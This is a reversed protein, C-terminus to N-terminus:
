NKYDKGDYSDRVSRQWEELTRRMRAVVEPLKEALDTKEAPDAYIDHLRVPAEVGAKKNQGGAPTVILKHEGDILVGQTDKVFDIKSFEGSGNWLMFGVPKPRALMKGDFLPVLSVGDVVPQNPMRVGVVDLVTPYIDMHACVVKTQIPQKIRGPWELCGVTRVGVKGKGKGSPDQSLPTIGGNDSTFWVITNDAINLRRLEARLKGVAADIGALEAWFDVKGPQDKYLAKFEEAGVHPSHPSGFCVYAFFPRKEQAQKRIYELALDMTAVSSDGQLQVYDNTDNVHLKAGIDYFNPSWTSQDFGMKVPHTSGTGLHWKGFHATGYGITKLAKALTIEQPRMAGLHHLGTRFPARGTLIGFRGPSCMQQAPYFYDFRVGGAAIQDLHPTKIVPSGAYSADRWGQDDSVVVVVNPRTPGPVAGSPAGKEEGLLVRSLVAGAAGGAALKVFDRRNMGMDTRVEEEGAPGAEPDGRGLRPPRAEDGM